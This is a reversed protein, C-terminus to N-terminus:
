AENDSSKKVEVKISNLQTLTSDPCIQVPDMDIFTVKKTIALPYKITTFVDDPLDPFVYTKTTGSTFNDITVTEPMYSPFGFWWDWYGTSNTKNFGINVITGTAVKNQPNYAGGINSRYTNTGELTCDILTINGRFTGGYDGRTQIFTGGVVKRVNEMYLEGGGVLNITHGIETNILRAGWFSRHADFRNISCNEFTMDKTWNSTMIGWFRSDGIGTDLPNIQVTDRFYVNISREIAMDYSGAAVPNPKVWGTSETAPKDEYYTTHGTLICDDVLLNYTRETYIFAYYPYSENCGGYTMARADGASTDLEPEAQMQHTVNRMTVNSREFRIGRSYSHYKVEFNTEAVARCCINIFTGNEIVVPTDDVRHIQVLTFEDFDFCVETEPDISGDPYMIFVDKRAEGSSQNAGHRIFDKHKSNTFMVLSKTEIYDALWPVSTDGFDLRADKGAIEDIQKEDLQVVPYDRTMTFLPISRTQYAASTTDDVIFTCGNWNVNTKVPVTKPLSPGVYYTAGTTGWVTQGCQNAFVHTDYIAQYDNIAGKGDAGFDSYYARSAYSTYSYDSPFTFGDMKDLVEEKVFIGFHKDFANAYSCEIILDKNADVYAAFGDAAYEAPLSDTYRIILKHEAADVNANDGLELWYGTKSFLDERFSYISETSYEGVAAVDIFLTYESLDTSSVRIYKITYETPSVVTYNDPVALEKLRKTSSKIGMQDRLYNRYTSDLRADGGGAILVKNGVTKVAYGEPGLERYTVVLEEDRNQANLGIIIECDAVKSADTDPVPDAVEIKLERLRDVFTQAIELAAAGSEATYVVQFRAKGNYILALGELGTNDWDITEETDGGPTEDGQTGDGGPNEDDQTGDGQTGDGNQTGDGQTSDGNGNGQTDDKNCAFLCVCLSLALILIIIRMATNKM